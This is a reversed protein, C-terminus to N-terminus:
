SRARSEAILAARFVHEVLKQAVAWTMRARMQAPHSGQGDILAYLTVEVTNDVARAEAGQVLPLHFPPDGEFIVNM